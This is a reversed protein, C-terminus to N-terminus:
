HEPRFLAQITERLKENSTRSKVLTAAVNQATEQRVDHASFIVVPVPPTQNNLLPLLELGHGDPLGLDLIVLDYSREQFRRRFEAINRASDVESTDALITAVVQLIDPDDEVHLIHRKRGPACAVAQRVAAILHQQDVPKDIWDIVWMADGNLDARGAQAMVSVVVIPLGRTEERERLERILSIGDQDPLVLDLTMGDYANRALLDKAQAANLAMDATFGSQVLMLRLLNAVDADDECVLVRGHVHAAAPLPLPIIPTWVPLDFYFTAGQAPATAFGIEGGHKEVIAKSISLGLGTGGKKRSDSADAQAFKQFIRTQFEPPIGPGHDIVAIRVASERRTVTIDVSTGRPSFKCANSILNTLVQILRDGDGMIQLEPATRTVLLTVGFQEAYARNAELAQGILAMLDLPQMHFVMKGSEIKEIDLIDNILRVLRESNKYAIDIM